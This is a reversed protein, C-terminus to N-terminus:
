SKDFKADSSLIASLLLEKFSFSEVKYQLVSTDEIKLKNVAKSISGNLWLNEVTM